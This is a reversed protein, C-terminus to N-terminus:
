VWVFIAGLSEYTCTCTGDILLAGGVCERVLAIM